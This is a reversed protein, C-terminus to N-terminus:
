LEGALERLRGVIEPALGMTQAESLLSHAIRQPDTM